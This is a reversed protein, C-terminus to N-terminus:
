FHEGVALFPGGKLHITLRAAILKWGHMQKMRHTAHLPEGHM